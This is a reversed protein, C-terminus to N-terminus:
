PRILLLNNSYTTNRSLAYINLQSCSRTIVQKPKIEGLPHDCYYNIEKATHGPYKKMIINEEEKNIYNKLHQSTMKGVTSDCLIVTESIHARNYLRTGPFVPTKNCEEYRLKENQVSMPIPEEIDSDMLNDNGVCRDENLNTNTDGEHSSIVSGDSSSSSIRTNKIGSIEDYIFKRFSTFERHLDDLEKTLKINCINEDENDPYSNMKQQKIENKLKVNETRLNGNDEGMVIFRRDREALESKCTKLILSCENLEKEADLKEQKLQECSKLLDEIINNNEQLENETEGQVLYAKQFMIVLEEVIKEVTEEEPQEENMNEKEVYEEELKEEKLNEEM